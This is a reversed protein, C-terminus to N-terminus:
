TASSRSSRRKLRLARSVARRGGNYSRETKSGTFGPTQSFTLYERAIQVREILNEATVGLPALAKIQESTLTM